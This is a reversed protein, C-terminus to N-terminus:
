ISEDKISICVHKTSGIGRKELTPVGNRGMKEVKDHEEHFIRFLPWLSPTSAWFFVTYGKVLAAIGMMEGNM